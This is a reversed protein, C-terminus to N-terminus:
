TALLVWAALVTLGVLWVISLWFLWDDRTMFNDAGPGWFGSRERAIFPRLLRFVTPRAIHDRALLNPIQTL